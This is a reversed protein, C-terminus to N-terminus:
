LQSYLFFTISHYLGKLTDVVKELEIRQVQQKENLADIKDRDKETLALADTLVYIKRKFAEVEDEMKNKDKLLKDYKSSWQELELSKEEFQKRTEIFFFFRINM